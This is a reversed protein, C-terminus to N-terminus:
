LTKKPRDIEDAGSLHYTRLKRSRPFERKMITKLLKPLKEEEVHWIEENYGHERVYFVEQKEKLISVGRNRKYSLIEVGEGEPKKNLAHLVKQLTSTINQLAM